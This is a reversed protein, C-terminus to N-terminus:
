FCHAFGSCPKLTQWSPTEGPLRAALSAMAAEELLCCPHLPETSRAARLFSVRKGELKLVRACVGSTAELSHRTSVAKKM